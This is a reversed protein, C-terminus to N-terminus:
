GGSRSASQGERPARYIAFTAYKSESNERAAEAFIAAMWGIPEASWDTLACMGVVEQTCRGERHPVQDPYFEVVRQRLESLWPNIDARDPPNSMTLRYTASVKEAGCPNEYWQATALLSAIAGERPSNRGGPRRMAHLPLTIDAGDLRMGGLRHTADVACAVFPIVPLPDHSPLPSSLSVEYSAIIGEGPSDEAESTNWLGGEATALWGMATARTSFAGYPEWDPDRDGTHRGHLDIRLINNTPM